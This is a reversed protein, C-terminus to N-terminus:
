LGFFIQLFDKVSEKVVQFSNDDGYKINTCRKGRKCSLVKEALQAVFDENSFHISFHNKAASIAVYGENMKKGALWMPMSFSIKPKLQPYERDMFDIFENVYQKGETNLGEIYESISIASM